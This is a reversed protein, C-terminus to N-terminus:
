QERRQTTRLPPQSEGGRAGAATAPATHAPDGPATARRVAPGFMPLRQLAGAERLWIAQEEIREIRTGGRTDGVSRRRGAEVVFSQGDVIMIHRTVRPAVGSSAAQAPGPAAHAGAATAVSAATQLAVPALLPDRLPRGADAAHTTSLALLAWCLCAGCALRARLRISPADHFRRLATATRQSAIPADQSKDPRIRHSNTRTMM